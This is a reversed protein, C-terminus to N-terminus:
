CAPERGLRQARCCLEPWSFWTIRLVGHLAAQPRSKENRQVRSSTFDADWTLIMAPYLMIYRLYRMM